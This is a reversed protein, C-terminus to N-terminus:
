MKGIDARGEEEGLLTSESKFFFLKLHGLSCYIM